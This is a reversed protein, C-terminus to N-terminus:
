AIRSRVPIHDGDLVFELIGRDSVLPKSLPETLNGRRYHCLRSSSERLQCRGIALELRDVTKQVVRTDGRLRDKLWMAEGRVRSGSLERRDDRHVVRRLKRVVAFGGLLKAIEGGSLSPKESM